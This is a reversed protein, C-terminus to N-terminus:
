PPRWRRTTGMHVRPARAYCLHEPCMELYEPHAQPCSVPSKHFPSWSQNGLSHFPSQSQNGLSHFPKTVPEAARLLSFPEMIPEAARPLPFPETIPEAARPLPGCSILRWSTRLGAYALPFIQGSGQATSVQPPAKSFEHFATSLLSQSDRYLQVPISIPRRGMASRERGTGLVLASNPHNKIHAGVVNGNILGVGDHTVAFIVHHSKSSTTAIGGQLHVAPWDVFPVWCTPSVSGWRLCLPLLTTSPPTLCGRLPISHPTALHLPKPPLAHSHFPNPSVWTPAHSLFFLHSPGSTLQHNPPLINNPHPQLTLIWNSFPCLLCLLTSNPSTQYWQPFTSKSFFPLTSVTLGM